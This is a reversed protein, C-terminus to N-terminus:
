DLIEKTFETTTGYESTLTVTLDVDDCDDEYTYRWELYEETGTYDDTDSVYFYGCEVEWEYSEADDGEITLLYRFTENEDSNHLQEVDVDDVVPSPAEGIRFTFSHSDDLTNGQPDAADDSVTVTYSTDYEMDLPKLIITNGNWKDTYTFDATIADEVEDKDMQNTFTITVNIPLKVDEAEDEPYNSAIGACAEISFEGEELILEDNNQLVVSVEYTYDGDALGDQSGALIMATFTNDVGHIDDGDKYVRLGARKADGEIEAIITFRGECDADTIISKLSASYEIVEEEEEETEEEETEEDDTEEETEEEEESDDVIPCEGEYYEELKCEIDGELICYTGDDREAVNGNTETCYKEMENAELSEDNDDVTDNNENNSKVCGFVLIMMILVAFIYKKMLVVENLDLFLV